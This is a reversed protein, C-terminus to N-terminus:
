EENVRFPRFACIASDWYQQVQISLTMLNHIQEPNM